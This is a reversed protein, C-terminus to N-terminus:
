CCHEAPSAASASSCRTARAPDRAPFRARLPRRPRPRRTAWPRSRAERAASRRRTEDDHPRPRSREHHRGRRHQDNGSRVDDNGRPGHHDHDGDHDHRGSRDHHNGSRHDHDRRPGHHDDGCGHHHNRVGNHDDGSRHHHNGRPGHHDHRSRRPRRRSPPPPKPSRPPRRRFRRRPRRTTTTCDDISRSTEHDEHEHHRRALQTCRPARDNGHRRRSGHQHRRDLRGERAPSRTAPSPTSRARRDHGDVSVITMPLTTTQSSNTIDLHRRPRRQLVRHDGHDIASHASAPLAMGLVVAAIVGTVLAVRRRRRGLRFVRNM